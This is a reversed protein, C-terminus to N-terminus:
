SAAKCSEVMVTATPQLMLLPLEVGLDHLEGKLKSIEAQANRIKEQEHWLARKLVEILPGNNDRRMASM